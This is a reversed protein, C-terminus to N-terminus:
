PTCGAAKQVRCSSATTLVTCVHRCEVTKNVHLMFLTLHQQQHERLLDRGRVELLMMM